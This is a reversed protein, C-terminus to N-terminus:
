KGPIFKELIRSKLEPPRFTELRLNSGKIIECVVNEGKESRIFELINGLVDASLGADLLSGPEEGGDHILRGIDGLSAVNETIVKAFIRGLYEPAKPADNVTDELTTLVSEFRGLLFTLFKLRINKM